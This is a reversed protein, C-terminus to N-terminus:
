NIRYLMFSVDKFSDMIIEPINAETVNGLVVVCIQAHYCLKEVNAARASGEQSADM